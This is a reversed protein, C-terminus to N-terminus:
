IESTNAKNLDAVLDRIKDLTESPNKAEDTRRTDYDKPNIQAAHRVKQNAIAKKMAVIGPDIRLSNSKGDHYKYSELEEVEDIANEFLLHTQKHRAEMYRSSFEEYKARWQAITSEQPMWSYMNILRRIGNPHTEVTECIKEALEKTYRTPRGGPHRIKLPPSM